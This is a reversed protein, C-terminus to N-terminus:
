KKYAFLGHKQAFIFFKAHVFSSCGSSKKTKPLDQTFRYVDVNFLLAKITNSTLLLAWWIPGLPREDFIPATLSKYLGFTRQYIGALGWSFKGAKHLKGWCGGEEAV